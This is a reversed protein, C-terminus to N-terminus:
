LKLARKQKYLGMKEETDSATIFRPWWMAHMINFILFILTEKLLCGKTEM